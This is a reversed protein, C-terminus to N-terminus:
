RSSTLRAFGFVLNVLVGTFVAIMRRRTWVGDERFGWVIAGVPWFFGWINGWFMDDLASGEDDEISSGDPGIQQSNQADTDLWREELRRLDDGHPMTDPTHTNSLHALFSARLTAVDAATFGTQLLRDFGLPGQTAPPVHGNDAPSGTSAQGVNQLLAQKAEEAKRAEEELDSRSLVDGISCHIYKRLVTRAGDEDDRLPQKGRSKASRPPPPPAADKLNLSQYLSSGDELIRGSFILRLRNRVYETPLRDRILLKLALTTTTKPSLVPITLDPISATFRIILELVEEPLPNPAM